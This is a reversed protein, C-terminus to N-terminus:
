TREWVASCGSQKFIVAYDRLLGAFPLPLASESSTLKMAQRGALKIAMITSMWRRQPSGNEIDLFRAVRKTGPRAMVTEAM